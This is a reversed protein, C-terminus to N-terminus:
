KVSDTKSILLAAEKAYHVGNIEIDMRTEFFNIAEETSKIENLQVSSYSM